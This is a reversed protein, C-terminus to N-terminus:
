SSISLSFLKLIPKCTTSACFKLVCGSLGVPGPSYTPPTTALNGLLSSETIVPAFICNARNLTNPYNSNSWSASSYTTQFFEFFLDAIESDTSAKISNLRVSSPL